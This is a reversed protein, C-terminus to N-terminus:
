FPECYRDQLLIQQDFGNIIPTASLIQTFESKPTKTCDRHFLRKCSGDCELGNESDLMEKFCVVYVTNPPM